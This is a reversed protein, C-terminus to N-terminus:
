YGQSCSFQVCPCFLADKNLLIRIRGEIVFFLCFSNIPAKYFFYRNVWQNLHLM